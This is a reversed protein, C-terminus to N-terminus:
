LRFTNFLYEAMNKINAINDVSDSLINQLVDAYSFGNFNEDNDFLYNTFINLIIASLTSTQPVGLTILFSYSILSIAVVSKAKSAVSGFFFVITNSLIIYYQLAKSLSAM